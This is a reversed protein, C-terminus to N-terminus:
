GIIAPEFQDFLAEYTTHADTTLPCARVARRLIELVERALDEDSEWRSCGALVQFVEDENPVEEFLEPGKDDTIGVLISRYSPHQLEILQFADLL